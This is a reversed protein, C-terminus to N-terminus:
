DGNGGVEAQFVDTSKQSGYNGAKNEGLLGIQIIHHGPDCSNFTGQHTQCWQVAEVMLADGCDDANGRCNYKIRITQAKAMKHKHKHNYVM